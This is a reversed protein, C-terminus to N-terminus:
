RPGEELHKPAHKAYLDEPVRVRPHENMILCVTAAGAPKGGVGHLRAEVASTYRTRGAGDDLIVYQFWDLCQGASREFDHENAGVLQPGMMQQLLTRAATETELSTKLAELVLPRNRCPAPTRGARVHRCSRGTHFACVLPDHQDGRRTQSVATLARHVRRVAEDQLVMFRDDDGADDDDSDGVRDDIRDAALRDGLTGDGHAGTLPRDLSDARHSLPLDPPLDRRRFLDTYLHHVMTAVYGQWRQAAGPARAPRPWSKVGDFVEGAFVAVKFVAASQALDQPDVGSDSRVRQRAAQHVVDFAAALVDAIACRRAEDYEHREVPDLHPWSLLAARAAAGREAALRFPDDPECEPVPHM